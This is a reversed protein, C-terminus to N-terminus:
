AVEVDGTINNVYNLTEKPLHDKWYRGNATVDKSLNGPGWNYAALAQKWSGFRQYLQYMYNAAYWISATPDTPDVHPHWHPIIQAIGVAGASSKQTGDIIQPNYGSEQDLQRALLNHPMGYAAEAAYITPLYPRAAVPPVWRQKAM